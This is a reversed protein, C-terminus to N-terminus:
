APRQLLGQNACKEVRCEPGGSEAVCPRTLDPRAQDRCVGQNACTEVGCEPGGSEAFCPCTLDPKLGTWASEQTLM